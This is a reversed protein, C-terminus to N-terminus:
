LLIPSTWTSLLLFSSFAVFTTKVVKFTTDDNDHERADKVNDDNDNTIYSYKYSFTKYKWKLIKECIKFSMSVFALIFFPYNTEEKGM